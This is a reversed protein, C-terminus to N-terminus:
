LRDQYHRWACLYKACSNRRARAFEARGGRSAAGSTSQRNVYIRSPIDMNKLFEM